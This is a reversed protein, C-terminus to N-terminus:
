RRRTTPKADIQLKGMKYRLTPEVLGLAKAAQRQNGKAKELAGRIVREEFDELADKLTQGVKLDSSSPPIAATPSRFWGSGFEAIPGTSKLTAGPSMVVAREIFHQLERVNGPWDHRHLEAKFEASLAPLPLSNEECFRRLFYEALPLIDAKRERLPAIHIPLAHLRFFLDERFPGERIMQTLDKNTAAILRVDVQVVRGTTGVRVFEREQLVRLLKAQLGTPMDGIEDLFLTGKDAREFIGPRGQVGTAAHSEIGFLEAEILDTSLAACNLSLFPHERRPSNYHITKAILEKGTGSEGTILVTGKSNAILEIEDLVREIEASRGIINSPQFRSGVDNRLSLNVGIVRERSRRLSEFKRSNDIAIALLNSFAELLELDSEGFQAASSRSELYVTGILEERLRLPTCLVSRVALDLVSQTSGLRPDNAADDARFAEGSSAVRRVISRSYSLASEQSEDTVPGYQAVPRVEGTDSSVLLIHGREAHLHEAVIELSKQILAPYDLLSNMLVAVRALLDRTAPESTGNAGFLPTPAVRTRLAVALKSRWSELQTSATLQWAEELFDTAM